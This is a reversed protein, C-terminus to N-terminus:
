FGTKAAFGRLFKHEGQAGAEFKKLGQLISYEILSYYCCEFHLFPHHELAGWYRGFLSKGKFFSFSGGIFKNERQAMVLLIRHKYSRHIHQFFDQNLYASGWKKAHTDAYFDWMINMHRPKIENGTLTMLTIGAKRLIDREKRIQKKRKSRIDDLFDAFCQYGRNLWHYQHTTRSLFGFKELFHQEKKTLCLFHISSIKNDKCFEILARTLIEVDREFELDNEILFRVGNAPTFPAAVVVKPFYNLGVRHFANAWEWDFIYEGYSDSKIFFTLIGVLKKKKNELLIYNPNWGTNKGICSSRELSELFEYELFPNEPHSLRNFEEKPIRQISDVIRCDLSSGKGLPSM